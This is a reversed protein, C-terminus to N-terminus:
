GCYCGEALLKPSQSPDDAVRVVVLIRTLKGLLRAMKTEDSLQVAYKLNLRLGFPGKKVLFNNRSEGGHIGRREGAGERFSAGRDTRCSSYAPASREACDGTGPVVKTSKKVSM